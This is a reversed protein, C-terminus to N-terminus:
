SVFFNGENATFAGSFCERHLNRFRGHIFFPQCEQITTKRCSSTEKTRLLHSSCLKAPLQSAAQIHWRGIRASRHNFRRARLSPKLSSDSMTCMLEIAAWLSRPFRRRALPPLCLFFFIRHSSPHRM